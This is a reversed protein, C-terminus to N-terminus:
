PIAGSPKLCGDTFPNERVIAAFGHNGAVIRLFVWAFVRLRIQSLFGTDTSVGM